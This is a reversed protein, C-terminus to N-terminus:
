GDCIVQKDPDKNQYYKEEARQLLEMKDSIRSKSPLASQTLGEVVDNGDPLLNRLKLFKFQCNLSVLFALNFLIALNYWWWWFYWGWIRSSRWWSVLIRLLRCWSAKPLQSLLFICWCVLALICSFIIEICMSVLYRSIFIQSSGVRNRLSCMTKLEELYKEM